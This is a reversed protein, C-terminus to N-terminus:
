ANQKAEVFTRCACYKCGVPDMEEWSDFHRYYTHGCVCVREDGYHPNYELTTVKLYPQEEAKETIKAILYKKDSETLTGNLIRQIRETIGKDVDEVNENEM